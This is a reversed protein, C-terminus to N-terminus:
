LSRYRREIEIVNVAPADAVAVLEAETEARLGGRASSRGLLRTLTEDMTAIRDILGAAKAEKALVARGEGYGSRVDALSVGRGRAVSSAFQKYTEDVRAQLRAKAEDSLPEYPNGELKFTGASILTIDIGAQALAKSMDTHATYVGISGTMGSPISVVEDCQSALWYAASCNLGNTVAVMRKQGRAAFIEDALEQVGTVTGGPSDIDFVIASVQPNALLARFQAAISECSVGGSSEDMGGMRHAITGRVPLIGVAGSTTAGDTRERFTEGLRAQIEDPTFSQGSARFALVALIDSLKEPTIAWLQTQVYSLVRAYKMM